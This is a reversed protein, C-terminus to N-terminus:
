DESSMGCVDAASQDITDFEDGGGVWTAASSLV